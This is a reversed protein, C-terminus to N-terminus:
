YSILLKSLCKKRWDCWSNRGRNGMWWGGFGGGEDCAREWEKRAKGDRRGRKGRRKRGRRNRGRRMGVHGVKEWRTGGGRGGACTCGLWECGDDSVVGLIGGGRM